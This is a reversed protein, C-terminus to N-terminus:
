RLDVKTLNKKSQSWGGCGGSAINCQFRRYKGAKTYLYGRPKQDWHSCKPCTHHHVGQLIVNLNPHNSAYPRLKEYVGRLARIDGRCYRVATQIEEIDGQAIKDWNPSHMKDEVGLFKCLYGLTNSELRFEKRAIKLTDIMLPKKPSPFGHYLCRGAFMKWDFGDGNHAIIVDAEEILAHITKIVIYDDWYCDEFRDMDNLVSTSSIIPQDLWQWAVCFITVPRKIDKWNLYSSYQKLQYTDMEIRMKMTEVDWLLIKPDSSIPKVDSISSINIAM